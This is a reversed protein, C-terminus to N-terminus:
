GRADVVGTRPAAVARSRERFRPSTVLIMGVLAGWILTGALLHSTVIVPNLDTWVNLAGILVEVAFLGLAAHALKAATPFNDKRKIVRMLTVFLILGVIAALGRHFFHVAKEEVALDPILRGGMLPWDNFARGSGEVGSMYSGVAMLFLTAGAAWMTMRSVENDTPEQLPGSDPAALAVLYILVAFVSLAAALHIVVSEAELEMKVVVAGLGAQFVVLAFATVSPWLLRPHDARARIAKVMLSGILILVVGALVRHSFEIVVHHNTFDPIVRGSCDPWADACGLGSDTSRVVAGLTILALTTFASFVALKRFSQM